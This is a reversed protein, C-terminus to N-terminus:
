LQATTVHWQEHKIHQVSLNALFDEVADLHGKREIGCRQQWESCKCSWAETFSHVGMDVLFDKRGLAM